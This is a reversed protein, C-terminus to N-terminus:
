TLVLLAVCVELALLASLVHRARLNFRALPENCLPCRAAPETM